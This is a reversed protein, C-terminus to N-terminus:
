KRNSDIITFNTDSSNLLAGAAQSREPLAIRVCIVEDNSETFIDELVSIMIEEVTNGPGLTVTQNVPVYDTGAILNNIFYFTNTQLYRRKRNAGNCGGCSYTQVIVDFSAMLTTPEVNVNVLYTDGETIASVQSQLNVM